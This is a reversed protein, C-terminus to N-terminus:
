PCKPPCAANQMASAVLQNKLKTTESEKTKRTPLTKRLAASQRFVKKAARIDSNMMHPTGPLTRRRIIQGSALDVTEVITRNATRGNGRSFGTLDPALTVTTPFVGDGNGGDGGLLGQGGVLGLVSGLVGGPLSLLMGAITAPDLGLVSGGGNGPVLATGPSGAPGAAGAEGGGLLGGVVPVGGVLAGPLSLVSGILSGVPM